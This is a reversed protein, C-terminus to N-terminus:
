SGGFADTAKDVAEKAKDVAERASSKAQDAEGQRQLEEDGTVKGVAEKAKGRVEEVKENEAM